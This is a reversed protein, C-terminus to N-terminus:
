SKNNKHNDAMLEIAEKAGYSKLLAIIKETIEVKDTEHFDEYEWDAEAWDLLSWRVEPEESICNPNAGAKLLLEILELNETRCADSLCNLGEVTYNLDTGLNIILQINKLDSDPEVDFIAYMLLSKGWTTLASINAGKEMLAKIKKKDPHSSSVEQYLAYDLKNNFPNTTM